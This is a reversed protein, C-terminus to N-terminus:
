HDPAVGNADFVAVVGAPLILGAPVAIELFIKEFYPPTVFWWVKGGNRRGMRNVQDVLKFLRFLVFAWFEKYVKRRTRRSPCRIWGVGDHKRFQRNIRADPSQFLSNITIYHMRNNRSFELWNFLVQFFLSSKRMEEFRYAAPLFKPASVPLPQDTNPLLLSYSILLVIFSSSILKDCSLSSDLPHSTSLNHLKSEWGRMKM